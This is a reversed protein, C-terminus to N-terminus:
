HHIGLYRKMKSVIPGSKVGQGREYDNIISVDISLANALQKQTMGKAVRADVLQKSFEVDIMKPKIMPEADPNAPDYVKITSIINDPKKSHTNNSSKKTPKRFVVQNLDQHEYPGSM